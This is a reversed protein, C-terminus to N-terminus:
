AERAIEALGDLCRAIDDDTNFFGPSVRITGGLGFTGLTRHADPACHLGPRLMVGFSTDLIMAAEACDVGAINLSVVAAREAGAPPGYVTVGPIERLGGILMDVLRMEHAHVADLTTDLIFRVGADLGALGHFNQTGSEYLYPLEEPQLPLESFV